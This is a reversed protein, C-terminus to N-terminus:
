GRRRKKKHDRPAKSKTNEKIAQAFEKGIDTKLFETWGGNEEIDKRLKVAEQNIINFTTDISTALSKNLGDHSDLHGSLFICYWAVYIVVVTYLVNLIIESLTSTLNKGEDIILLLVFILLGGSSIKRFKQMGKTNSDSDFEIGFITLLNSIIFMVLTLDKTAFIETSWINIVTM